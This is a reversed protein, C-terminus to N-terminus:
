YYNNLSITYIYTIMLITGIKTRYNGQVEPIVTYM